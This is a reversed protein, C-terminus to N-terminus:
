SLCFTDTYDTYGLLHRFNVPPRSRLVFCERPDSRETALEYLRWGHQDTQVALSGIYMAEATPEVGRYILLRVVQEARYGALVVRIRSGARLTSKEARGGVVRITPEEPRAVTFSGTWTLEDQTAAIRHTGLQGSSLTDWWVLDWRALSSLDGDQGSCIFCRTRRDVTGDPRTIRIEVTRGGIFDIVCFEYLGGLHLLPGGSTRRAGHIQVRRGPEDDYVECGASGGGNYSTM